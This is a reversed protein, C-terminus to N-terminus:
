FKIKIQLDILEKVYKMVLQIIIKINAGGEGDLPTNVDCALHSRAAAIKPLVPLV